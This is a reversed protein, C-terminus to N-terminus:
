ISQDPTSQPLDTSQIAKSKLRMKLSSSTTTASSKPSNTAVYYASTKLPETVTSDIPKQHSLAEFANDMIEKDSLQSSSSFPATLANSLDITEMAIVLNQRPTTPGSSTSMDQNVMLDQRHRKRAERLKNQMLVHAALLPHPEHIELAEKLATHDYGLRILESSATDFPQGENLDASEPEKLDVSPSENPQIWPHISIQHSSLRESANVTLIGTVLSRLISTLNQPIVVLGSVIKNIMKSHVPHEFPHKGCILIYLIVGLAWSDAKMADYATGTM